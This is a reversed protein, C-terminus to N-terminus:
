KEIVVKETRTGDTTLQLFYVGRDFGSADVRTRDYGKGSMIQQGISNFLRYSFEGRANITFTGNNPNPYVRPLFGDELLSMDKITVTVEGTITNGQGDTVTVKYTTEELIPTAVPCCITPNDLTEAPEWLYTYDGDGGTVVATLQSSEGENILEPDATVSIIMPEYGGVCTVTAVWGSANVGQDSTFRFTLAGAENTATVEGPGNSGDYRGIESANTSNGDYVYLYDYGPETNFETFNVRIMSGETGPLFTMTYDRNNNYNNNPGGNDYFMANCTEVTGNQMNYSERVHIYDTRTLTESNGEADSITLTVDFDGVENYTINSPNQQTSTAPTGGEFTWNWSVIDGFSGDTFNVSGGLAVQTASANFSAVMCSGPVLQVDLNITEGDAITVDFIKPCYGEKSVVFTWSGGKIPRYFDGMVHSTVESGHHDHGIVTVLAGEIPQGTISDTVIGRVGKTCQEIYTLMSNHNINWFNPLQSANPTKSNSCEITVERCQGYYNMYDQRSGTITYWAYGNTIGNNYDTMYSNSVEHTLNAYEHCVLQWWADDPHLPQYTDWPYNMVEAGGHYNASMTFLHEQALDMMWQCEDQYYSAGDPHPGDDFDPFHRNLDVHNGNERTAGYVTNNGGHYTGDPNTCPFIFLDVNDLINLIRPDNSTCFEDILRLMLIMGTVEDGHMTSTYLFHPKGDTQGNNLRAGMLKRGSALTGLEIYTCRNPHDTAFQQMMTEYEGYSLYSDWDYTGRTADHMVPMERMSPPTMLMPQYGLQILNDYQRQNAYAIVTKGDTGDVSCLDSIDQIETPKLVTLSFYYEGREQMLRELDKQNDQAFLNGSIIAALILIFYRLTKM